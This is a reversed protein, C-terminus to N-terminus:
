KTTKITEWSFGDRGFHGFNATKRYIPKLLDLERIINGVSFDFNRKVWAYIEELEVLNTNFTDIMISIPHTQGIAYSLQIECREALKAAVLNKAVFRSYYAASRDVKSPDKSSFCGGGIRGMGGYTDVVIKRGTTGSDGFSGGVIFSGSPNIFYKTDPTIWKPDVVRDIVQTKVIEHLEEQSLDASHQTSVVITDISVPKHDRYLVTVQTKGDPRIRKDEWKLDSLRKSLRHATDIALPMYNETENSAYGFMIGQDGAAIEDHGTVANFIEASQGNVKVMVTYEENYGISRIVDKAIKEFDITAKTNAEGYVLILDDKITAEVAMKSYPDQSLAADLISDAIQDCIKDPHGDTVSESTFLYERM